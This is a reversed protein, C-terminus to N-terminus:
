LYACTRLPPSAIRMNRPATRARRGPSSFSNWLPPALLYCLAAAAPAHMKGALSDPLLLPPPSANHATSCHSPLRSCGYTYAIRPANRRVIHPSSPFIAMIFQRHTKPTTTQVMRLSSCDWRYWPSFSAAGPPLAHEGARHCLPLHLHCSATRVRRAGTAEAGKPGRCCHTRRCL